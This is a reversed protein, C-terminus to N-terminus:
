KSIMCVHWSIVIKYTYIYLHKETYDTSRICPRVRSNASAPHCFCQKRSKKEKRRKKERPNRAKMRRTGKMGEMAEMGKKEEMGKEGEM